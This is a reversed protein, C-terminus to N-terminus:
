GNFTNDYLPKESTNPLTEGPNGLLDYIIQIDKPFYTKKGGTKFGKEKLEKTLVKVSVGYKSAIEKYSMAKMIIPQIMKNLIM